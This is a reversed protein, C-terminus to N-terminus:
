SHKIPQKSSFLSIQAEYCHCYCQLVSKLNFSKKAINQECNPTGVSIGCKLHMLSILTVRVMTLLDALTQLSKCVLEPSIQSHNNPEISSFRNMQAKYRHLLCQLASKLNYFFFDINQECYPTDVCM